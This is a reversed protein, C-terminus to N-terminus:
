PKHIALIEATDAGLAPAAMGAPERVGNVMVPFAVHGTEANILDRAIVHRDDLIKQGTLVPGWCSDVAELRSTWQALTLQAVAGAILAALAPKDADRGSRTAFRPESLAPAIDQAAGAFAAWFKDELTALAISHGDATQYLDSDAMVQWMDHIDGNAPSAMAMPAAMAAVCDFMSVDILAGKGTQDAEWLAMTVALAAKNGAELDALRVNPRSIRGSVSSPASYFGAMALTAMDHAARNQYPGSLGFGSLGCWVLAPNQAQMQAAGIGLRDLYGPRFGDIVADVSAALDLLRASDVRLDIAISKKGRNLDEFLVPSITRLPDGGKPHEVKIIEAGHAQLQRTAYPGPLYRSLDLIRKGRLPQPFRSM